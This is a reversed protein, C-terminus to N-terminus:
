AISHGWRGGNPGGAGRPGGAAGVEDFEHLIWPEATKHKNAFFPNWGISMATMHVRPDAGVRAWGAYIGTVAEALVAALAEGCM